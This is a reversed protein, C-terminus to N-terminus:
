RPDPLWDETGDWPYIRFDPSCQFLPKQRLSHKPPIRFSDGSCFDFDASDSCCDSGASGSGSGSGSGSDSDSDSGCCGSVWLFGPRGETVRIRRYYSWLIHQRQLGTRKLPTAMRKRQRGMRPPAGRLSDFDLLQWHCNCLSTDTARADGALALRILAFFSPTFAQTYAEVGYINLM